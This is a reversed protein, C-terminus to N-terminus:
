MTFAVRLVIVSPLIVLMVLPRFVKREFRGGTHMWLWATVQLRQQLVLSPVGRKGSFVDLILHSGWATALASLVWWWTVGSIYLLAAAAGGLIPVEVLHTTQRHPIPLYVDVDPSLPGGGAAYALAAGGIAPLLHHDVPAIAVWTTLAVLRHTARLCM